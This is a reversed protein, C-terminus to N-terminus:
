TNKEKLKAEINRYFEKVGCIEVEGEDQWIVQVCDLKEVEEDTLGVWTRKQAVSSDEAVPETRQPPHTYLPENYPSPKGNSIDIVPDDFDRYGYERHLNSWNPARWAV